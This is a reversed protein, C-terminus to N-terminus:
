GLGRLLLGGDVVIHSGTMYSGADSALLLMPAILEDPSGVRRQPIMQALAKGADSDLFGDNIETPFYGPAIANVRIGFRALELAQTKTLALVAAKAAGYAGLSKSPALGLISAINVMSGGKGAAMMRQAAAQAVLFVGRLNTDLVADWEAEPTQTLFSERSIGANNIVIDPSWEARDMAHFADDVSQGSQVDMAVCLSKDAGIEAALAELRDVRRAALIVRAGNAALAKAFVVGLGSSAGTVLATRGDLSFMQHSM